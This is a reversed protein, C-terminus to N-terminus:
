CPGGSGCRPMGWYTCETDTLTYPGMITGNSNITLSAPSRDPAVFSYTTTGSTASATDSCNHHSGQYGLNARNTICTVVGDVEVGLRIMGWGYTGSTGMRDETDLAIRVRVKGDATSKTAVMQWGVPAPLGKFCDDLTGTTPVDADNGDNTAPVDPPSDPAVLDRAQDAVADPGSGDGSADVREVAVDALDPGGADNPNTGGTGGSGGTGPVVGGTGRGGAGSADLGGDTKTAGGAGGSGMTGGTRASGGFGTQGGAAVAGGAGQGGSGVTGGTTPSGSQGGNGTRGGTGVAPADSPGTADPQDKTGSGGCAIGLAVMPLLALASARLPSCM